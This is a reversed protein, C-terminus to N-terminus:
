KGLVGSEQRTDLAKVKRRARRKRQARRAFSGAPAALKISSARAPHTKVLRGTPGYVHLDLGGAPLAFQTM